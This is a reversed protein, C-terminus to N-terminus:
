PRIIEVNPLGYFVMNHKVRLKVETRPHSSEQMSENAAGEAPVGPPAIVDVAPSFISRLAVALPRRDAVGKSVMGQLLAENAEYSAAWQNLAISGVGALTLLAATEWANELTKMHADLRKLNDAQAIKSASSNNSTGDLLLAFRCPVLNASAIESPELFDLLRRDATYVLGSAALGAISAPGTMVHLPATKAAHLITRGSPIGDCGQVAKWGACLPEGTEKTLTPAKGGGLLKFLSPIGDDLPQEQSLPEQKTKGAKSKDKEAAGTTSQPPTRLAAVQEVLAHRAMVAAVTGDTSEVTGKRLPDDNKPDVCFLLSSAHVHCVAAGPSSKLREAVSAVSSPLGKVGDCKRLKGSASMRQAFVPLSFDRVVVLGDFASLAELPLPALAKEVLLIIPGTRIPEGTPKRLFSSVSVKEPEHEFLPDFLARMRSIVSRIRDEAPDGLDVTGDERPSARVDSPIFSALEGEAGFRSSFDRVETSTLRRIDSLEELLMGLDERENEALDRRGVVGTVGEVEHALHPFASAPLSPDASSPIPAPTETATENTKAAPAEAHALVSAYISRGSPSRQLVVYRFSSPLDRIIVEPSSNYNLIMGQLVQGVYEAISQYSPCTNPCQMSQEMSTLLQANLRRRDSAAASAELLQSLHQRALLGQYAATALAARVPSLCAYAEVLGAAAAIASAIQGSQVALSLGKHLYPLCQAHLDAADLGVQEPWRVVTSDVAAFPIIGNSDPIQVTTIQPLLEIGSELSLVSSGVSEEPVPKGASASAGAASAKGAPVPAKDKEKKSGPGAVAATVASKVSGSDPVVSPKVETPSTWIIADLAEYGREPLLKDVAPGLTAAARCKALRLLSVGYLATADAISRSVSKDVSISGMATSAAALASEALRVHFIFEPLGKLLLEERDLQHLYRKVPDAGLVDIHRRETAVAAAIDEEALQCGLSALMIRAESAMRLSPQSWSADYGPVIILEAAMDALRASEACLESASRLSALRAKHTDPSYAYREVDRNEYDVHEHGFISAGLVSFSWIDAGPCAVMCKAYRLAVQSELLLMQHENCIRRAAVFSSEATEWTKIWSGGSRRARVAQSCLLEGLSMHLLVAGRAADLDVSPGIEDTPNLSTVPHISAEFAETSKMLVYRADKYQRAALLSEVLVTVLRCWSISDICGSQSCNLLIQVAANFDGEGARIIAKVFDSHWLTLQDDHAKAHRDVENVLKQAGISLGLKAAERALLLWLSRADMKDIRPRHIAKAGNIGGGQLAAEFRGATFASFMRVGGDAMEEGAASHVKGKNAELLPVEGEALAITSESLSLHPRVASWSKRALIDDRGSDAWQACRLAAYAAVPKEDPLIVDEAITVMFALAPAADATAGLECLVNVLWDMAFFTLAPRVLSTGSIVRSQLSVPLRKMGIRLPMLVDDELHAALPDGISRFHTRVLSLWAPADTPIKYPGAAVQDKLWLRYSPVRKREFSDMRLFSAEANAINVTRASKRWMLVIFHVAMRAYLLRESEDRSVLALTSMCRVLADYHVINLSPPWDLARGDAGLGAATTAQVKQAAPASVSGSVQRSFHSSFSSAISPRRDDVSSSGGKKSRSNSMLIGSALKAFARAGSAATSSSVVSQQDDAADPKAPVSDGTSESVSLFINAAAHCADAVDQASLRHSHLWEAYDLYVFAQSFCGELTSIAARYAAAQDSELSGFRSLALWLRAKAQPTTQRLQSLALTIDQGLKTQIKLRMPWLRTHYAAPLVSFAEEAVAYSAEWEQGDSLALLIVRYLESRLAISDISADGSDRLQEVLTRFPQVLAPRCAALDMMPMATNFALMVATRVLACDRIRSAWAGAKVFHEIALSRLRDQEVREQKGPLILGRVAQGWSCEAVSWWKFVNLKGGIGAGGVMGGESMSLLRESLMEVGVDTEIMSAHSGAATAMDLGVPIGYKAFGKGRTGFIEALEDQKLPNKPIGSLASLSCRQSDIFLKIRQLMKAGAENEGGNQGDTFGEAVELAVWACRAWLESVLAISDRKLEASHAAKAASSVATGCARAAELGEDLSIAPMRPLQTNRFGWSLGAPSTTQLSSATSEATPAPTGKSAPATTTAATATPVSAEQGSTDAAQPGELLKLSFEELDDAITVMMQHAAKFAAQRDALPTADHSFVQLLSCVKYLPKLEAAAVGCTTEALSLLTDALVSGSNPASALPPADSGKKAPAGNQDPPSSAPAVAFVGYRPDNPFTKCGHGLASLLKLRALVSVLPVRQSPHFVYVPFALVCYVTQFCQHLIRDTSELPEFLCELVHSELM